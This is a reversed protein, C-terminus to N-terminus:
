CKKRGKGMYNDNIIGYIAQALFEVTPEDLKWNIIHIVEHIMTAEKHSQPLDKSITITNTVLETTGCVDDEALDNPEVEKIKVYHGGIKLGGNHVVHQYWNM